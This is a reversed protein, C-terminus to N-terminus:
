AIASPTSAAHAFANAPMMLSGGRQYAPGYVGPYQFGISNVLSMCVMAVLACWAMIAAGRALELPDPQLPPPPPPPPKEPPPNPPPPPPANQYSPRTGTSSSM